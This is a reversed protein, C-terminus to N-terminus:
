SRPSHGQRYIGLLVVAIAVGMLFGSLPDVVAEPLRSHRTLPYVSINAFALLILGLSITRQLDTWSRGMETIGKTACRLAPLRASAM